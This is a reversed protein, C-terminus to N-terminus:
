NPAKEMGKRHKYSSEIKWETPIVRAPNSNYFHMLRDELRRAKPFRELTKSLDTYSVIWSEVGKQSPERM